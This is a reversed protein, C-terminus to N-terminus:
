ILFVFLYLYVFLYISWTFLFVEDPYLIFAIQNFNIKWFGTPSKKQNKYFWKSDFIISVRGICKVERLCIYVGGVYNQIFM